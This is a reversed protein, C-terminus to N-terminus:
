SLIILKRKGARHNVYKVFSRVGTKREVILLMNKRPTFKGLLRPPVVATGGRTFMLHGGWGPNWDDPFLYAVIGPEPKEKERMTYDRHGFRRNTERRMSKRLLKEVFAGIVENVMITKKVEHNLRGPIIKERWGQACSKGTRALEEMTLFGGLAIHPLRKDRRFQKRLAAQVETKLYRRNISHM